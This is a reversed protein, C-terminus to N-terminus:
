SEALPEVEALEVGEGVIDGVKCKLKKLVGAYPARLTQEMKMVELTLIPAGKELTAGEEALLAVVTGPLPAVIKDEGVHEESEGGFPDVWHLDFRGNRTRLYLEHGEIVSAVRSKVGNLTLDFGRDDPSSITFTPERGGVSLTSPGNGYHLTITQAPEHGQRLSFVRQRRGVPMWGFTQWPSSAESRAAKQEENVIAAVAACLEFEGAAGKEATLSKLEREIFGTDITNARTAPHTVLASLFPINTVIGRVDTEELGRNLKEIAAQRTPAWAIVKALMADYYPSVSDGSRYGADIRLGDRQPPTRWTKIRGVSPMFNKRPNEAYVRAEIAHGNLKVEDQKLPLAEGFAVRLQWEVLDVGTILETVPHEVQLRTNMEIFFVDKGDSVFEITGAGVYNVAGAAKRAAECVTERQAANLTPSPAEEIVKQHRRQLTCEREWLSLLNGHRDGVIQVEIHRPNQVFKEILMRDDGFAAKAERKASVIAASLEAASNVVRMGRGGGGASAKVLLPFGIRNAADALTAEDQAEGHYGPVLPVGAKEMLAKSGSKSGMATMMEATPGVFVLGAELCAQAFEANESLFGYGPHVAEAGTERAAAIVREINLYSDRARAPGLLVAEDALAVHMAERDAESYVAVTRLGMARASRIVRCAIEGRNAILLTRFRRYLRSRDM